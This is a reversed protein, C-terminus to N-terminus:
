SMQYTAQEIQATGSKENFGAPKKSLFPFFFHPHVATLLITAILIMAGDFILFTAENKM